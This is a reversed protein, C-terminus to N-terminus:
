EAASVASKEAEARFAKLHGAFKKPDFDARSQVSAFMADLKDSLSPFRHLDLAVLLRELALVTREARQVLVASSVNSASFEAHVDALNLLLDRVKERSWDRPSATHAPRGSAADKGGILHRLAAVRAGVDPDTDRKALQAEAERLAVTQGVLWAQAGRLRNTEKWHRPMAATQGDLEFILEPHGAARIDPDLNQHCAVCTNARVSLNKLDRLGANVKDQYTIDTRTHTLIWPEAANHCSECSVAEVMRGVLPGRRDAPVTQLPDHCITCRADTRPEAIKLTEAIRASRAMDLTAPARTHFDKRAWIVLEDHKEEAGGHCMASACSQAGLFRSAPEMVEASMARPLAVLCWLGRVAYIGFRM